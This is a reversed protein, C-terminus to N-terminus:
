EKELGKVSKPISLKFSTGNKRDFSYTGNFESILMDVLSLGLTTPEPIKVDEPIGVGDDSIIMNINERNEKLEITITGKERGVFAYKMANTLIENVVLGFKSLKEIDFKVKDMDFSIQVINNIDYNRKLQQAISTIYNGLTVESMYESGLLIEYAQAMSRIRDQSVEFSSLADEKNKITDKQLQLLSNITQLNNKTRHHVERLLIVKEKLERKIQESAQKRKIALAIAESVFTLIDVDKASYLDPNEYSQVAILGIVKKDIKLPVGLWIESHAGITEVEGRKTLEEVVENTALLSKGTMIVYKALTKGAPFNKHDDKKDIHFPLSITDTEEDYLAVFFNTTDVVDGLFNRIASFLDHMPETTNLANSINFLTKQIKEAQIRENIETKLNETTKDLDALASLTALRQQESKELLIELESSKEKIEEEAKKRETIDSVVGDIYYRGEEEIWVKKYNTSVWILSGDNRKEQTEYDLLYGEKELLSLMKERTDDMTYYKESPVKLLEEVSNYGYIEVMAPNASIMKGEPTSRFIGVPLNTILSRFREESKSLQITKKVIQHRLMRNFIFSIVILFFIITIIIKIWLPFITISEQGSLYKDLSRYYISNKERKLEIMQFDIEKILYPILKSDKSFAFQMHAPQFIISTKEINFNMDHINGFDKDTIGADIENNELAQFIDLYDEMEIIECDVEFKKTVAKLGEPGDLDFSGKLGAIKKGELDLITQIDSGSKKYIRTWSLLVTEDSFAFREQRSPTLGVDVMIDIENKELRQLCQDWNGHVWEIEWDEQGAIYKTIDAWFGSIEGNDKTFIKPSNEYTGIKLQLKENAALSFVSFVIFFIFLIIRKKM